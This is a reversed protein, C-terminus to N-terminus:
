SDVTVCSIIYKLVTKVIIKHLKGVTLPKTTAFKYKWSINLIVCFLNNNGLKKM